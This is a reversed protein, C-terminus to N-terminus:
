GGSDSIGFLLFPRIRQVTRRGIGPVLNLDGPGLYATKGGNPSDHRRERFAVINRATQEGLGPLQALEFWAATNPDLGVRVPPRPVASRDEGAFHGNITIVLCIGAGVAALVSATRTRRDSIGAVPDVPEQRTWTSM